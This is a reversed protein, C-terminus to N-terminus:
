VGPALTCKPSRVGLLANPLGLGKPAKYFIAECRKRWAEETSSFEPIRNCYVIFGGRIYFPEDNKRMKRAHMCDGGSIIKKLDNINLVANKTGARELRFSPRAQAVYAM